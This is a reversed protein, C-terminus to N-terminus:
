ENSPAAPLALIRTDNVCVDTARVQFGGPDFSGEGLGVSMDGKYHAFAVKCGNPSIELQSVHGEILRRFGEGESALAPPALLLTLLLLIRM